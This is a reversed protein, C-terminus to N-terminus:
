VVGFDTGHRPGTPVPDDHHRRRQRTWRAAEGIGLFTWLMGRARGPGRFSGLFHGARVIRTRSDAVSAMIPAARGDSRHDSPTGLGDGAAVTVGAAPPAPPM